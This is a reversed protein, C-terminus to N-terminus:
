AGGQGTGRGLRAAARYRAARGAAGEPRHHGPAPLVLRMSLPHGDLWEMLEGFARGARRSAAAPYPALLEGAYEAAEEPPLGGM